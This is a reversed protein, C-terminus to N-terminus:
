GIGLQKAVYGAPGIHDIYEAVIRELTDPLSDAVSGQEAIARAWRVLRPCDREGFLEVKGNLYLMRTLLPAYSIDVLGFYDQFFPSDDRLLGEVHRLHGMLEDAAKRFAAESDARIMGGFAMQCVSGFEIWSKCFARQVPDTTLLRHGSLDDALEGIVASEFITIGDARVVPVKGLPSVERFWDPPNAPDIYRTQHELGAALLAIRVRQGFPCYRFLVLELGM